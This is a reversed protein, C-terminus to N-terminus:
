NLCAWRFGIGSRASVGRGGAPMASVPEDAPHTEAEFRRTFCHTTFRIHVRLDKGANRSCVTMLFPELHPFAYLHDGIALPPHYPKFM